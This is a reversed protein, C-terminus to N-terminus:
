ALWAEIKALVSSGFKFNSYDASNGAFSYETIASSMSVEAFNSSYVSYNDLDVDSALEGIAGLKYSREYDVIDATTQNDDGDVLILKLSQNNGIYASDIIRAFANSMYGCFSGVRVVYADFSKFEISTSAASYEVVGLNFGIFGGIQVNQSKNIQEPDQSIELSTNITGDAVCNSIYTGTENMGVFGGISHVLMSSESLTTRDSAHAVKITTNASCEDVVAGNKTVGAFGGVYISQAAEIDITVNEVKVNKVSAGDILGFAGGFRDNTTRSKSSEGTIESNTITINEINGGASAYGAVIGAYRDGYRSVDISVNEFVLDKVIAGEGLYGFLGYYSYSGTQTLNSIKHGNGNFEGTFASSTSQFIPAFNEEESFDLDCELSYYAEYDYKIKGLDEISNIIIPDEATGGRKTTSVSITALDYSEDKITCRLIATYATNSDLSQITVTEEKASGDANLGPFDDSFTQSAAKKDDEDYLVVQVPKTVQNDKDLVSAKFEISSRNAAVVELTGTATVKTSKCSFLIGAMLIFLTLILAKSIRKM